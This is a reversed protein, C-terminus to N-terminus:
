PAVRQADLARRLTEAENDLAVAGLGLFPESRTRMAEPTRETYAQVAQLGLAHLQRNAEEARALASVSRELLNTVSATVQRQAALAQRAQTLEDAAKQEGNTRRATEDALEARLHAAEEQAQRLAEAQQRERAQLTRREGETRDLRQTLQDKEAALTTQQQRLSDREQQAQQMAAQAQRAVERAQALRKDGTDAAHAIGTLALWVLLGAWTGHSQTRNSRM